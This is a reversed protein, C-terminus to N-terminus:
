GIKEMEILFISSIKKKNKSKFIFFFYNFFYKDVFIVLNTKKGFILLVNMVCDEM